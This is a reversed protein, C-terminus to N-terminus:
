AADRAQIATEWTQEMPEARPFAFRATPSIMSVVLQPRSIGDRILTKNDVMMAFSEGGLELTFPDDVRIRQYSAPDELEMTGTWAYDGEAMAINASLIM